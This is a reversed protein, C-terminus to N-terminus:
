SQRRPGQPTRPWTWWALLWFLTAIGGTIVYGAWRSDFLYYNRERFRLTSQGAWSAYYEHWDGRWLTLLYAQPPPTGFRTVAEDAFDNTTYGVVADGRAKQGRAWSNFVSEAPLRGSSKRYDEVFRSSAKFAADIKESNAVTHRVASESILNAIVGVLFVLLGSALALRSTIKKM